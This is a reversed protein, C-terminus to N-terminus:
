FMFFMTVVLAFVSSIISAASSSAKTTGTTATTATTATTTTAAATTVTTAPGASPGASPGTGIGTFVTTSGGIILSSATISHDSTTSIFRIPGQTTSHIAGNVATILSHCDSPRCGRISTQNECQENYYDCVGQCKAYTATEATELNCPGCYLSCGLAVAALSCTPTLVGPQPSYRSGNNFSACSDLFRNFVLQGPDYDCWNPAPAAVCSPQCHQVHLTAVHGGIGSGESTCLDVQDVPFCLTQGNPNECWGCTGNNGGWLCTECYEYRSCVSEPRPAPSTTGTTAPLQYIGTTGGFGDHPGSSTSQAHLTTGSIFYANLLVLLFFVFSKM